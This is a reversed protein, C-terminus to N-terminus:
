YSLAIFSQLSPSHQSVPATSLKLMKGNMMMILYGLILCTSAIMPLLVVFFAWAFTRSTQLTTM